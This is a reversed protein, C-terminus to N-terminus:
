RILDYDEFIIESEAAKGLSEVSVHAGTVHLEEFILSNRIFGTGTTRNCHM